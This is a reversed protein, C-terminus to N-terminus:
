LKFNFSTKKHVKSIIGLLRQLGHLTSLLQSHLVSIGLQFLDMQKNGKKPLLAAQDRLQQLLHINRHFAKFRGGYCFQVLQRADASASFCVPEIDRRIRIGCKSRCLILRLDHVIFEYRYLM